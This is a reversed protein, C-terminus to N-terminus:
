APLVTAKLVLYSRTMDRALKWSTQCTGSITRPNASVKV